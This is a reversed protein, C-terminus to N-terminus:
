ASMRAACLAHASVGKGPIVCLHRLGMPQVHRQNISVFGQVFQGKGAIEAASFGARRDAHAGAIVDVTQFIALFQPQAPDLDVVM